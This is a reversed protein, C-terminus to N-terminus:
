GEEVEYRGELWSRPMVLTPVASMKLVRLTTSGFLVRKFAGKGHSPIAILDGGIDRSLEVISGPVNSGIVVRTDVGTVGLRELLAVLDQECARTLEERTEMPLVYPPEGAAAAIMPVHGIHVVTQRAGLWERIDVSALLGRESDDSFDVPTVIHSFAGPEIGEADEGQPVVLTPAPANQVVRKSTSGILLREVGGIGRRGMVIFDVDQDAIFELIERPASGVSTEVHLDVGYDAIEGSLSAVWDDRLTATEKLHVALAQASALGYSAVEDVHLLTVRTAAAGRSALAAAHHAAVRSDDSLDIPVLIHTFM